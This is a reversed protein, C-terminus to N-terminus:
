YQSEVKFRYSTRWPADPAIEISTTFGQQAIPNDPNASISSTLGFAAAALEVGLARFAGNFPPNRRGGNSLWLICAPLDAENWDVIVSFGEDHRDIRLSGKTGNLQLIEEAEFPLPLRSADFLSGDAAPIADLATFGADPVVRGADPLFPIPFTRGSEFAVEISTQRPESSLAFVPHVGASIRARARAHITLGVEVVAEGKVLSVTRELRSVPHDHPYDIGIELADERLTVLSWHHNAGFGHVDRFAPEDESLEQWKAPLGAPPHPAGYPVCAFDGRLHRMVPLLGAAEPKDGWETVCFPQVQKGGPLSFVVPGMMGGMSHVEARVVDNEISWTPM